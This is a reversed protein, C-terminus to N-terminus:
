AARRALELKALEVAARTEIENLVEELKPDDTGAREQRVASLLRDLAEPPVDGELLSLKVDDLVDLIAGARRVAKRRRELPGGVEQLALLADISGIGSPGATRVAPAAEQAAGPGAVSFGGAAPRGPARSATAAGIGSAGSVKM